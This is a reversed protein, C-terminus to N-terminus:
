QSPAALLRVWQGRTRDSSWRHAPNDLRRIGQAISRWLLGWAEPNGMQGRCTCPSGWMRVHFSHSVEGRTTAITCVVVVDAVEQVNAAVHSLLPRLLVHRLKCLSQHGHVVAVARDALPAGPHCSISHSRDQRQKADCTVTSYFKCSQWKATEHQHRHSTLLCPPSVFHRTSAPKECRGALWFKCRVTRRGPGDGSCSGDDPESGGSDSHEM